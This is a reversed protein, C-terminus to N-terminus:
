IVLWSSLWPDLALTNAGGVLVRRPRGGSTIRRMTSQRGVVEAAIRARQLLCNLNRKSLSVHLRSAVKFESSRTWNRVV